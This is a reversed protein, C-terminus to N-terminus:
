KADATDRTRISNAVPKPAMVATIVVSRNPLPSRVPGRSASIAVADSGASRPRLKPTWRAISVKPASTPGNIAKATSAATGKPSPPNWETNTNLAANATSPRTTSATATGSRRALSGTMAATSTVTSQWVGPM